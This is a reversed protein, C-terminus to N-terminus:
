WDWKRFQKWAPRTGTHGAGDDQEAARDQFSRGQSDRTGKCKPYARCGWFKEGTKGNTRPTM